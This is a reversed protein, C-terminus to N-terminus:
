SEELNELRFQTSYQTVTHICHFAKADYMLPSYGNHPLYVNAHNATYFERFKSKKYISLLVEHVM